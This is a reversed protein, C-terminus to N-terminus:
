TVHFHPRVTDPCININIVMITKSNFHGTFEIYILFAHIDTIPITSSLLFILRIGRNVYFKRNESLRHRRIGGLVCM